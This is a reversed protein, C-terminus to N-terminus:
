WEPSYDALVIALGKSYVEATFLSPRGAFDASKKVLVEHLADGGSVVVVLQSGLYLRFVNGYQKELQALDIHRSDAALKHVSEIIPLPFPGPPLKRTATFHNVFLLVLIVVLAFWLLEDPMAATANSKEDM